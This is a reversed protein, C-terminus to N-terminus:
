PKPEVKAGGLIARVKLNRGVLEPLGGRRILALAFRMLRDANYIHAVTELDCEKLCEEFLQLMREGGMVKRVLEGSEYVAASYARDQQPAPTKAATIM